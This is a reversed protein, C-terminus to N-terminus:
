ILLYDHKVEYKAHEIESYYDVTKHDQIKSKSMEQLLSVSQVPLIMHQM